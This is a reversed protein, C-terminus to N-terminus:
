NIRSPGKCTKDDLHEHSKSSILAPELKSTDAGEFDKSRKRFDWDSSSQKKVGDLTVVQWFALSRVVHVFCEFAIHFM